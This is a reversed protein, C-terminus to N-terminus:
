RIQEIGQEGRQALREELAKVPLPRILSLHSSRFIPCAKLHFIQQGYRGSIPIVLLM